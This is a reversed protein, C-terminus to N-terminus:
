TLFIPLLSMRAMNGNIPNRQGRGEVATCTIAIPPAVSIAITYILGYVDPYNVLSVALFKCCRDVCYNGHPCPDKDVYYRSLPCIDVSYRSLPCMDM